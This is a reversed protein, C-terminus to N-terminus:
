GTNTFFRVCLASVLKGKLLPIEQISPNLAFIIRLRPSAVSASLSFFSVNNLSL